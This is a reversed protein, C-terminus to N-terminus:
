WSTREGYYDHHSVTGIGSKPLSYVSYQVGTTPQSRKQTEFAPHRRFGSAKFIHVASVLHSEFGYKLTVVTALDQM